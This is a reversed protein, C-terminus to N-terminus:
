DFRYGNRFPFARELWTERSYGRDMECFYNKSLERVSGGPMPRVVLSLQRCLRSSTDCRELDGVYEYHLLMAGHVQKIDRLASRLVKADEGRCDLSHTFTDRAIRCWVSRKCVCLRM